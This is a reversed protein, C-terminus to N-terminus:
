REYIEDRSPMRGGFDHGRRMRERTRELAALQEASVKREAAAPVLRAVPKGTRTIVLDKIVDESPRRKVGGGM